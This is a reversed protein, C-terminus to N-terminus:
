EQEYDTEAGSRIAQKIVEYEHELANVEAAFIPNKLLEKKVDDWSKAM